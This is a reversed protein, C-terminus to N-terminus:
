RTTSSTPPVNARLVDNGADDHGVVVSRSRLTVRRLPTGILM